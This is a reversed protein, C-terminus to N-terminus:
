LEFYKNILGIILTGIIILASLQVFAKINNILDKKTHM